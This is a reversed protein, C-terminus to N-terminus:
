ALQKVSFSYAPAREQAAKLIKEVETSPIGAANGHRNLTARGMNEGYAEGTTPSTAVVARLTQTFRDIAETVTGIVDDNETELASTAAVALANKLEDGGLVVGLLHDDQIDHEYYSEDRTAVPYKGESFVKLYDRPSAQGTNPLLEVDVGLM